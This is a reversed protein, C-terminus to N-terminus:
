ITSDHKILLIIKETKAQDKIQQTFLNFYEKLEYNHFDSESVHIIFGDFLPIIQQL